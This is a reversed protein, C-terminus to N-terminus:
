RWQWEEEDWTTQAALPGDLLQDDGATSMRAFAEDSGERPRRYPRIVIQGDEADLEVESGFQGQQLLAKPIRIGQSNGIRIVRTRMAVIYNCLTLLTLVENIRCPSAASRGNDAPAGQFTLSLRFLRRIILGM